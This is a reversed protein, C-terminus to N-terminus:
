RASSGPPAPTGRAGRVVVTLRCGTEQDDISVGGDLDYHQLFRTMAAAYFRRMPTSAPHRLYDFAASHIEISGRGRSFRSKVKSRRITQRVFRRGLALAARSRWWVPMRRSLSVGIGSLGAVTWDAACTGARDAIRDNDPPGERYVFSLVAGLPALGLRGDRLGTPSLWNEYFELRSPAVDAIGQHLSAILLRGIGADVM